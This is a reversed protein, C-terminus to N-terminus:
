DEGLLGESESLRFLHNIHIERQGSIIKENHSIMLEFLDVVEQSIKASVSIIATVSASLPCQCVNVKSEGM